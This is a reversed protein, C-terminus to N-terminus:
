VLTESNLLKMFDIPPVIFQEGPYHKINGTVLYADAFKATDYFIRDDEDPLPIDSLGPLVPFGIKSIEELLVDIDKHNLGLRDRYLVDRYETMIEINYFLSFRKEKFANVIQASNGYASLLGSVLVNTDLVANIM